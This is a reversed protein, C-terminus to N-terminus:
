FSLKLTKWTYEANWAKIPHMGKNSFSESFNLQKKKKKKPTVKVHNLKIKLQTM